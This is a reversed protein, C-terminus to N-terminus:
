CECSFNKRHNTQQKPPQVGQNGLPHVWPIAARSRAMGRTFSLVPKTDSVELLVFKSTLETYPCGLVLRYQREQGGLTDKTSTSAGKEM